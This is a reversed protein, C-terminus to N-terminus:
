SSEIWQVGLGFGLQSTKQFKVVKVTLGPAGAATVEMCPLSDLELYSQTIIKKSCHKNKQIERLLLYGLNDQWKPVHKTM